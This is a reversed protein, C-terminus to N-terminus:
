RAVRPGTGPRLNRALSRSRRLNVARRMDTRHQAQAASREADAYHQALDAFTRFTQSM